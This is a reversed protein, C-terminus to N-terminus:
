DQIIKFYLDLEYLTADKKIEEFQVINLFLTHFGAETSKQM